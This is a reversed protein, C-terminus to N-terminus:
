IMRDKRVDATPTESRNRPAKNRLPLATVIAAPIQHPVPPCPRKPEYQSSGDLDVFMEAFTVLHEIDVDAKVDVFAHLAKKSLHYALPCTRGCDTILAFGSMEFKDPLATDAQTLPLMLSHILRLGPLCPEGTHRCTTSAFRHCDTEVIMKREGNMTPTRFFSFHPIADPLAHNM